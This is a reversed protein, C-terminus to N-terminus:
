ATFSLSKWEGRWVDGAEREYAYCGNMEGGYVHITVAPAAAVNAIVHYDFPPILQGAAGVGAVIEGQLLFRTRGDGLEAVRDYTTIQIQGQYVCEVCWLGAHDHLSTSQGTGWVMVVVSYRREPDLHLLRRAYATTSPQVVRQPLVLEQRTVADALADRVAACTSEADPECVAADLREVLHRVSADSRETSRTMPNTPTERDYDM